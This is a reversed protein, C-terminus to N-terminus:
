GGVTLKELTSIVTFSEAERGYQSERRILGMNKAYYEYQVGESADLVESKVVIVDCFTGLPVQVVKNVEVIERRFRDDSWSTGVELPTKLLVLRERRGPSPELLNRDEYFEEASWVVRIEEPTVEVIKVLNTGSLDEIQLFGPTAFTVQRTFAAFELGEGAFQPLHCQGLHSFLGNGFGFGVSMIEDAVDARCSSEADYKSQGVAFGLYWHSDGFRDNLVSAM